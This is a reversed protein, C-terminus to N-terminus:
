SGWFPSLNGLNTTKQVIEVIFSLFDAAFSVPLTTACDIAKRTSHIYQFPYSQERSIQVCLSWAANSAGANCVSGEYRPLRSTMADSAQTRSVPQGTAQFQRRATWDASAPRRTEIILTCHSKMYLNQQWLLTWHSLYLHMSTAFKTLTLM